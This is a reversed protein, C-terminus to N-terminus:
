SPWVKVASEDLSSGIPELITMRMEKLLQLGRSLYATSDKRSLRRGVQGLGILCRAVLPKMGLSEALNLANQYYTEAEGLRPDGLKAAIEGLVRLAYARNGAEGLEMCLNLAKEAWEFAEGLRNALVLAESLWVMAAANLFKFRKADREAAAPLLLAIGESLRGSNVFAHGLSAAIPPYWVNVRFRRLIEMGRELVASGIAYSGRRLHANGLGLSASLRAWPEGAAEALRVAEEGCQIADAFSGRESRLLALWSNANVAQLLSDPARLSDRDNGLLCLAEEGAEIGEAYRGLCFCAWCLALNAYIKLQPDEAELALKRGHLVRELADDYKGISWLAAGIYSSVWGTRRRDDISQASVEARWLHELVKDIDGIPILANRLAIRIDIDLAVSSPSVPLRALAALADEFFRVAENYAYHALAKGGAQRLYTVAKGWEAARLCHHALREVQEHRRDEGQEEIALAIKGHLATRQRLTLTSYAVEHTLYHNFSYELDPFLASEYLMQAKQLNTLSGRLRQPSLGALVELIMYQLQNGIVAACQLVWKEEAPLRDIRAALVARITAPVEISDIRQTLRYAGPLGEITASDVLGRVMEELFFPNGDARETLMRKLPTLTMSPGVLTDLLEEATATPLPEIRLSTYYNKDGWHDRYEPRYSVILMIKASPLSEVLNDLLVETESDVWHLDEFVLVLPQVLSEHVFLRKIAELMRQRRRLSDLAEWKEDCTSVDLLALLAPLFTGLSPELGLVKHTVKLRVEREGDREDIQFYAKLLDIAAYNIPSPGLSIAGSQVILCDRMQESHTWEWLLRSKGIGADGVIAMVQGYGARALDVVHFLHALERERGVLRTLGHAVSTHFRSHHRNAGVIEYVQVRYQLGKVPWEGLQKFLVYGEAAGVTEKTALIGGPMAMQEMRAALHTVAGVATYDMRLDSEVSYVVVEGSNLGVRIQLPIGSSRHLEEAYQKVTEQMRLAAYCALVAHNERAIPAGFLAMIGDGMVQNVTGDYRRVAEMMREVVPDLAGRAEEPDRGVLLELSGKMDAFLVTVQKREGSSAIKTDLGRQVQDNVTNGIASRFRAAAIPAGCEGCFKQSAASASGCASCVVPLPNGCTGCYKQSFANETQCQPCQM